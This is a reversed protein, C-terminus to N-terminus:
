NEIMTTGDEINEQEVEDFEPHNPLITRNEKYIRVQELKWEDLEPVRWNRDKRISIPTYGRGDLHYLM